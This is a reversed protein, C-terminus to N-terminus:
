DREDGTTVTIRSSFARKTLASEKSFSLIFYRLDQIQMSGNKKGRRGTSKESM